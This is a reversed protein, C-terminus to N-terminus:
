PSALLRNLAQITRPTSGCCGGIFAAGLAIWGRAAVVFDEDSHAKHITGEKSPQTEGANAYVGFPLTTADALAAVVKQAVPLTLCNVLIGQAGGGEAAAVAAILSAGGWLNLRDDVLYSVLTPLGTHAAAKLAIRAEDLTIHTELLLLDAGAKAMWRALDRYTARAVEPGPYDAPTYCDGVPALSGAM